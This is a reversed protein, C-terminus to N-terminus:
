QGGQEVLEVRRNKARGADDRNEAIPSLPGVGKAILRGPAIKFQAQLAAVVSQARKLSLGLNYDLGGQNDTHGVVFAKLTPRKALYGAIETLQPKSEPKIDSKDFDFFLGYFIARGESAIRTDIESATVTVIKQEMAKPEIAEILVGENGTVATSADGNSGGTMQAVYVGVYTDGGPGTKKYLGYRIDKVYELMANTLFTRIQGAKEVVVRHDNNNPDFKKRGFDEGCAEGGCEFAPKFGASGLAQKHNALIELTSRGKPAIYLSRTIRGQATVGL